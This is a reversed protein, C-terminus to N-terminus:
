SEESAPQGSELELEEVVEGEDESDEPDESDEETALADELVDLLANDSHLVTDLGDADDIDEAEEVDEGEADEAEDSNDLDVESVLEETDSRDTAPLDEGDALENTDLLAASHDDVALAVVEIDSSPVSTESHAGCGHALSVVKGDAPSFENACLGFGQRLPGALPLLFGCTSCSLKASRAIPSRPGTSGGLWRQAARDRGEVSMVRVRGLGIEWGVPRLEDDDNEGDGSFGPVLRADDAPTAMVDGVGLDGPEIRDQWPVWEPALLAQPGPILFSECVTVVDDDPIRTVTVGWQWGVYGPATCAFMHTAIGDTEMEVGLFDGISDGSVADQLVALAQETAAVLLPDLAPPANM